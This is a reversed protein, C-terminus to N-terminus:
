GSVPNRHAVIPLWLCQSQNEIIILEGGYVILLIGWFIGSVDFERNKGVSQNSPPLLQYSHANLSLNKITIFKRANVILSVVWFTGWVHIERNNDVSQSTALPLLQYGRVSLSLDEITILEGWSVILLVPLHKCSFDFKRNDGVSQNSLAVIPLWPCKTIFRWNYYAGRWVLSSFVVFAGFIGKIDFERNQTAAM